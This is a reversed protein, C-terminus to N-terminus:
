GLALSSPSEIFQIFQKGLDTTKSKRFVSNNVIAKIDESRRVTNLKRGKKRNQLQPIEPYINPFFNNKSEEETIYVEKLNILGKNVLDKLIQNYIVEKNEFEPFQAKLEEPKYQDLYHLSKLVFIHTVTFEDIWKLFMLQLDDDLANPISSNLVANRLAKLKEEQHTLIAMQCARILITQFGPNYLDVSNIRSELKRLERVLSEFFVQFRENVPPSFYSEYFTVALSGIAPVSSVLAKKANYNKDSNTSAFVTNLQEELSKQNQLNDAM